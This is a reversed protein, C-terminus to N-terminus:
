HNRAGRRVSLLVAVAILVMLVWGATTTPGLARERTALYTVGIAALSMLALFGDDVILSLLEKAANLLWSM